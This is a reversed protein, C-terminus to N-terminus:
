QRGGQIVVGIVKPNNFDIYNTRKRRTGKLQRYMKIFTGEDYFINVSQKNDLIQRHVSLIYDLYCQDRKLLKARLYELMSDLEEERYIYEMILAKLAETHSIEEIKM